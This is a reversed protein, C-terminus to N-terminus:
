PARKRRESTRQALRQMAAKAEETLRARASNKAIADLLSEAEQTGLHELIEIARLMRLEYPSLVNRLKKLLRSM